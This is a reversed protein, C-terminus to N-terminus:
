TGRSLLDDARDNLGMERAAEALALWFVAEAGRDDGVEVLADLALELENHDLYESFVDLGLGDATPPPLLVWARDLHARTRAWSAEHPSPM